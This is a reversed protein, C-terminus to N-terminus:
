SSRGRRLWGAAALLILATLLVTLLPERLRAVFMNSALQGIQSYGSPLPLVGHSAEFAEYAAVM